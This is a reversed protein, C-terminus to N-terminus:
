VFDTDWSLEEKIDVVKEREAGSGGEDNSEDEVPTAAKKKGKAKPTTKAAGKPTARKKKAPTSESESENATVKRKKPTAPSPAGAV